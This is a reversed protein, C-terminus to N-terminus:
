KCAYGSSAIKYPSSVVDTQVYVLSVYGTYSTAGANNKYGKNWIQNASTKHVTTGTTQSAVRIETSCSAPATIQSIASAPAALGVGILVAAALTTLTTKIKM